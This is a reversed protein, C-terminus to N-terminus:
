ILLTDIRLLSMTPASNPNPSINAPVTKAKLMGSAAARDLTWGTVDVTEQQGSPSQQGSPAQQAVAFADHQGSPSQQGLPAQQASDAFAEQQGVPAQQGSPPHQGAHQGM